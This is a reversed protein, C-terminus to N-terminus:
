RSFAKGVAASLAASYFPKQLFIMGMSEVRPQISDDASAIIIRLEPNHRLLLASAELGDMAPMRYDMIILDPLSNLELVNRVCEDGDGALFDIEYGLRKLIISYVKRISEEDDVIAIKKRQMAVRASRQAEVAPESPHDQARKARDVGPGYAYVLLQQSSGGRM